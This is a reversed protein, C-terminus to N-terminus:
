AVQERRDISLIGLREALVATKAVDAACHRRVGEWNGAQVLAAIDKGSTEDPVEIGFRKCYFSLSHARIAGNFSLKQMLDMHPTRYRDLNITPYPVGLYQSRRLLVPLDFGLSNFGILTCPYHNGYVAWFSSILRREDDEDTALDVWPETPPTWGIAVVRCLDPDLACKGVQEATKEAIYDAIKAPDKYNSPASVPEIFEAAGGISVTEIDFVFQYGAGESNYGM